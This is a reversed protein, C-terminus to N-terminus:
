TAGAAGDSGSARRKTEKWAETLVLEAPRNMKYVRGQEPMEEQHIIGADALRLLEVLLRERTVHRGPSELGRLLEHFTMGNPNKYLCWLIKKPIGPASIFTRISGSLRNLDETIGLDRMWADIQRSISENINFVDFDKYLHGCFDTPLRPMRKEKLLLCRRGLAIMFGLEISINPNFEREDIEEFVAIGYSSARMYIRVNDWLLDTFARDRALLARFGYSGLSTRLAREIAEFQPSSGYRMMVFVNKTEPLLDAPIPVDLIDKSM